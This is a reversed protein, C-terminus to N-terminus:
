KNIIFRFTQVSVWKCIQLRVFIHLIEFMDIIMLPPHEYRFWSTVDPRLDTLIFLSVLNIYKKWWTFPSSFLRCFFLFFANFLNLIRLNHMFIHRFFGSEVAAHSLVSILTIFMFRPQKKIFPLIVWSFEHDKALSQSRYVPARDVFSQASCRVTDTGQYYFHFSITQFKVKWNWWM